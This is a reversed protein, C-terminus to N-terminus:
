AVAPLDPATDGYGPRIGFDRMVHHAARRGSFLAGQVTSTDRHDGCVYLGCLVRVPRRVDHPPPMAPVADPDHHVALLEWRRTDTGYLDALHPRVATDVDAPPPGLVTSTILTRGAPARSPDIASAVMTHAVPGRRDIDLVLLPETSPARDAAHHVVTVPHFGPVRLGPLLSGADRAGTAVVAARCRLERDDATTVANAAVATARVGLRVTDPPLAAALLEPVTAAGGAPLGLRGRAYGRLVLDACHSSTTLQPDNLLATLLPRVFGHVVRPPLGRAALATATTTEPRVLLRDTPTLALRSLAAGLRARDLANRPHVTRHGRGGAGPPGATPSIPLLRLASLGPTRRLEPYSTNLLQSGRDLRFGDVNETAMRGGVRSAAELVTVTVGANILHHAASLGALGAGVIVVDTHRGHFPM